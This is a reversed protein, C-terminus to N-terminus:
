NMFMRMNGKEHLSALIDLEPFFANMDSLNMQSAEQYLTETEGSLKELILQTDYHSVKVCRLAAGLVMNIVGYQHSCFLEKESIGALAFVMGQAVPYMGPTEGYTIEKLWDKIFSNDYLRVSLEALKKGMRTAMQRAEDNMKFGYLYHDIIKCKNYDGKNFARHTLLCAVGDSFAAQHSQSRVFSELTNADKVIKEFSATELGNSFSFTGVPFASDTFQLLRMVKMMDNSNEM